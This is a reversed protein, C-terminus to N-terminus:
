HSHVGLGDHEHAEVRHFEDGAQEPPDVHVSASSLYPLRHLLRHRVEKAVDHGQAVSYRSAM